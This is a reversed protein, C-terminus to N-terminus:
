EGKRKGSLCTAQSGRVSPHSFGIGERTVKGEKQMFPYGRGHSRNKGTHRQGGAVDDTEQGSLPPSSRSSTQPSWGDSDPQEVPRFRIACGEEMQLPKVWGAPIMQM